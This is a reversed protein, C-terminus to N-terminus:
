ASTCCNNLYQCIIWYPSRTAISTYSPTHYSTILTSQKHQDAPLRYWVPPQAPAAGLWVLWAQLWLLEDFFAGQGHHGGDPLAQGLDKMEIVRWSCLSLRVSHSLSPKQPNERVQNGRRAERDYGGIIGPAQTYAWGKFFVNAISLVNLYSPSNPISLHLSTLLRSM